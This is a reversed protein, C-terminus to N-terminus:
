FNLNMGVAVTRTTPYASLEIGSSIPDGPLEPTFGSYKKLTFLNQSTLFLRLGTVHYREVVAPRVTYGITLNNIRLFDGSEVFYSSAPLNGVNAGPESQSRGGSTWRDYVVDKEVNDLGNVRVARKGNYVENGVNGYLSLSFDWQKFNVSANIGFYAVPQYSGVVVRDADSIAGDNNTDQYKFDGPKANPQIPNGSSNAYENVEQGTNFVGL